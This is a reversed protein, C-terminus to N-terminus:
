LPFTYHRPRGQGSLVLCGAPHVPPTNKLDQASGTMFGLGGAGTASYKLWEAV